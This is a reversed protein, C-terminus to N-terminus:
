QANPRTRRPGPVAASGGVSGVAGSAPGKRYAYVLVDQFEHGALPRSIRGELQYGFGSDELIHLLYSLEDNGRSVHHHYEIVIQDIRDFKGSEKLERVVELEAGEIDMKLFDVRRDLQSSLRVSDVVRKDKPMREELTSMELSGPNSQDYYFDIKGGASSLGKNECTVSSLANDSINQDLCSFAREDPEFALIRATPFIMKFYLVSMGINSGCDIIYPTPNSSQFLYTNKVFLEDFLFEFSSYSLFRVSFDGIQAIQNEHDYRHLIL